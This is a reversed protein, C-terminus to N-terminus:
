SVLRQRGDEFFHQAVLGPFGALGYFWVQLIWLVLLALVENRTITVALVRFALLFYAL